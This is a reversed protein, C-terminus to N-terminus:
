QPWVALQGSCLVPSEQLLGECPGPQGAGPEGSEVLQLLVQWLPVFSAVSGVSVARRHPPPVVTAQGPSWAGKLRGQVSAPSESFDRSIIGSLVMIEGTQVSGLRCVAKTGLRKTRDWPSDGALSRQM